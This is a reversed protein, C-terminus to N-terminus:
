KDIYEKLFLPLMKKIKDSDKTEVLDGSDEYCFKINESDNIDIMYYYLKNDYTSKSVIVYEKQEELEVTDGINLM